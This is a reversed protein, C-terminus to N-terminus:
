HVLIEIEAGTQSAAIRAVGGLPFTIRPDTHGFDVNAIVPLRALEPKTTIIARLLDETLHSEHQFRAIIVARVGAFGPQHILSQLDRDFDHPQSECDAELFLISNTLDPMFETGQLLNLTCLHGGVITGEATGQHIILFGDSPVLTRNDQDLYWADDTWYPSPRVAYPTDSM